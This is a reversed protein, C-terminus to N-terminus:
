SCRVTCSRLRLLLGELKAGPGTCMPARQSGYEDVYPCEQGRRGACPGQEKPMRTPQTTTRQRSRPSVVAVRSGQLGSAGKKASGWIITHIQIRIVPSVLFFCTQPKNPMPTFNSGGSFVPVCFSGCVFRSGRGGYFHVCCRTVQTATYWHHVM